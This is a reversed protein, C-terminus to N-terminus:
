SEIQWFLFQKDKGPISEKISVVKRKKVEILSVFIGHFIKGDLSFMQDLRNKQSSQRGCDGKKILIMFM